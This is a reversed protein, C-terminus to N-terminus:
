PVSRTRLRDLNAEIFRIAEAPSRSLTLQWAGNRALSEHAANVEQPLLDFGPELPGIAQAAEAPSLPALALETGSKLLCFTATSASAPGTSPTASIRVAHKLKGNRVRVPAETGPPVDDPFIHAKGPWGWIRLEPQRQIYVTDESLTPFGAADAALALCSKGVGSPGALIVALGDALFGSAHVPARDNRALLFLVLPDLVEQRLTEENHLYHESITCFATGDASNSWAGVGEGSLRLMREAAYIYVAGIGALRRSCELRLRLLPAGAQAPGEWGGCARAVAPAHAPDDIEILLPM